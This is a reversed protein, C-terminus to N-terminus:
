YILKKIEILDIKILYLIWFYLRLGHFIVQGLHKELKLVTTNM